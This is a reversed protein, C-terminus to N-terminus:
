GKMGGCYFEPKGGHVGKVEMMAKSVRARDLGGMGMGQGKAAGQREKSKDGRPSGGGIGRKVKLDTGYNM